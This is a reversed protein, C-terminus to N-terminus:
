RGDKVLDRLSYLSRRIRAMCDPTDIEGVSHAELALLAANLPTRASHRLRSAAEADRRIAGSVSASDKDGQQRLEDAIRRWRQVDRPRASILLPVCKVGEPLSRKGM